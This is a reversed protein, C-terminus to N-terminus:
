FRIRIGVQVGNTNFAMNNGSNIPKVVLDVPVTAAAHELKEMLSTQKEFSPSAPATVTTNFGTSGMAKDKTTKYISSCYNVGNDANNFSTKKSKNKKVLVYIIGGVALVSLTVAAIIAGDSPGEDAYGPLNRDMDRWEAASEYPHFTLLILVAMALAIIKNFKKM